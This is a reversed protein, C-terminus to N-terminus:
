DLWSALHTSCLQNWLSKMVMSTPMLPLVDVTLVLVTMKRSLVTMIARTWSTAVSSKKVTAFVTAMRILATAVVFEVHM